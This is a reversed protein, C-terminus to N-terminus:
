DDEGEDEAQAEIADVASYYEERTEFERTYVLGTETEELLIGFATVIEPFEKRDADDFIMGYIGAEDFLADGDRCSKWMAPVYLMEGEFKGLSQIVGNSTVNYAALVEARTMM